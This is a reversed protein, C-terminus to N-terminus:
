GITDSLISPLWQELQAPAANDVQQLLQRAVRGTPDDPLAPATDAAALAPGALALLAAARCGAALRRGIPGARHSPPRHTHM